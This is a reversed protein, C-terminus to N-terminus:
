SVHEVGVCDVGELVADAGFDVIAMGGRGLEREPQLALRDGAARESGSRRLRPEHDERRRLHDDGHRQERMEGIAADLQRSRNGTIQRLETGIALLADRDELQQGHLATEWLRRDPRIMPRAALSTALLERFPRQRPRRSRTGLVVRDCSVPHDGLQDFRHRSPRIGIHDVLPHSGGGANRVHQSNGVWRRRVSRDHGNTCGAGDRIVIKENRLETPLLKNGVRGDRRLQQQTEVIRSRLSGGNGASAANSPGDVHRHDVLGENVIGAFRMRRLPQCIGGSRNAVATDAGTITYRGVAGDCADDGARIPHVVIAPKWVCWACEAVGPGTTLEAPDVALTPQREAEQVVCQLEVGAM